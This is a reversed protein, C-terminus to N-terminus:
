LRDLKVTVPIESKLCDSLGVEPGIIELKEKVVISVGKLL